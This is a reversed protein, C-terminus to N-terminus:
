YGDRCTLELEEAFADMLWRCNNEPTCQPDDCKGHKIHVHAARQQARCWDV